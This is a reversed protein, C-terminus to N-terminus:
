RKSPRFRLQMKKRKLQKDRTLTKGAGVSYARILVLFMGLLGLESHTQAFGARTQSIVEPLVGVHTALAYLIAFGHTTRWQQFCRAEAGCQFFFSVTLVMPKRSVDKM